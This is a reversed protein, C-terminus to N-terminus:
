QFIYNIFSNMLACFLGIDIGRTFFNRIDVNTILVLRVHCQFSKLFHKLRVTMKAM